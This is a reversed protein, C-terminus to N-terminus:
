VVNKPMIAKTIDKLKEFHTDTALLQFDYDRCIIAHLVDKKPVNRKKAVRNAEEIQEKTVHVNRSNEPRAVKFIENVEYRSYGLNKLERINLDSIGIIGDEEIIKIILKISIEGNLGRKEYYDLWVSTDLYYGAM